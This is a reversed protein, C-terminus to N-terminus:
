KSKKKNFIPRKLSFADNIFKFQKLKKYMVVFRFLYFIIAYKKKTHSHTIDM